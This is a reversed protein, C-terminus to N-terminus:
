HEDAIVGKERKEERKKQKWDWYYSLGFLGITFGIIIGAILGVFFM